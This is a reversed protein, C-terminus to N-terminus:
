WSTPVILEAQYENPGCRSDTLMTKWLIKAEDSGAVLIFETISARFKWLM